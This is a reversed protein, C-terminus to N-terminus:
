QGGNLRGGRVPALEDGHGLAIRLCVFGRQVIQIGDAGDGLDRAQLVAFAPGLDDHLAIAPYPQQFLYRRVCVQYHLIFVEDIQLHGVATGVLM